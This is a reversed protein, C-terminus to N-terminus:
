QVFLDLVAMLSSVEIASTAMEIRKALATIEDSRLRTRLHHREEEWTNRIHWQILAKGGTM